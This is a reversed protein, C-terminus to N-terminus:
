GVDEVIEGGGVARGGAASAENGILTHAGDAISKLTALAHIPSNRGIRDIAHEMTNIFERFQKTRAEVQIINNGIFDSTLKTRAERAERRQAETTTASRAINNLAKRANLYVEQCQENTAM